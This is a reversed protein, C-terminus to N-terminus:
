RHAQRAALFIRAMASALDAPDTSAVAQGGTTKAIENLTPLDADAGYAICHVPVPKAPDRAAALRSLFTERSMGYKTGETKEEKGDTLVVVLTVADPRFRAQMVESARLVSEYLPTGANPVAQYKAAADLVLKRRPVGAAGPGAVPEDIPGFPVVETYPPGAPTAAAFLWLALSTDEGFLQAALTGSRRLLEAKTTLAGTRDRVPASMSGSGDLLVLVQFVLRKYQAWQDVRARVVAPDAPLAVPAPYRAAFGPGAPVAGGTAAPGAPGRLGHDALAQVGPPSAFWDALRGALERRTRDGAAAPSLALPYDAETPADPPYTAVLETRHEDRTYKWLAQETLPFLGIERVARDPDPEAALRKLLAAPDAEADALRSRFTLAKLQAIGPDPTTRGVAAYVALAALLGATDRQPDPMSFRPIQRAYTLAALEGWAPQKGPWGLKKAYPEPMAVVVPSRALVHETAAFRGDVRDLWLSSSPIWADDRDALGTDRAADAVARGTVAIVPCGGGPPAPAVAAAATRLVPVLEPAAVVRLRTSGTCRDGRAAPGGKARVLVVAGAGLALLVVVLGAVLWWRRRRPRPATGPSGTDHPGFDAM